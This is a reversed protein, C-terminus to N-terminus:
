GSFDVPLDYFSKTILREDLPIDLLKKYIMASANGRQYPNESQKIAERFDPSVARQVAEHIEQWHYGSQIINAGFVRGKQRNGINVCPLHFSPAEIVASSSNGVMARSMAMLSFYGETGLNSVMQANPHTRLFGHVREAILRGHTDANPLTFVIPLEADELAKLLESIQWGTQEYELTVPHYTVVLPPAELRLNYKRELEKKGLLQISQLNDLSPAGSVVVRWPEEGLQVVRRGYEVTSVFHLHSLKTISHRLADDIAGQTVEGGHIHAIPIKFPLAALAATYMEFRDGLVVLLDPRHNAYSQAFNIVGLGISKSVGQESDSSLLMELREAVPFGDAEIVKVTMGFEPSLHMGSVLVRLSVSPDSHLLHLLSRYIGYDSRAVTVVAIDRM